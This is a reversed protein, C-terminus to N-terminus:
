GVRFTCRRFKGLHTTMAFRSTLSCAASRLELRVGRWCVWSNIWRQKVLWTSSHKEGSIMQQAAHLFLFLNAIFHLSNYPWGYLKVARKPAELLLPPVLGVRTWANTCLRSPTGLLLRVETFVDSVSHSITPQARTVSSAFVYGEERVITKFSGVLGQSKETSLQM